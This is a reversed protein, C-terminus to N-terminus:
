AIETTESGQFEVEDRKVIRPIGTKHDVILIYTNDDCANESPEIDGFDGGCIPCEELEHDELEHFIGDCYLCFIEKISLATNSTKYFNIKEM